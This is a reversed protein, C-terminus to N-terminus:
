DLIDNTIPHLERYYDHHVQRPIGVTMPGQEIHHHVLLDGKYPRHTRHFRLWTDDVRPARGARIRAANGPSFLQPFDALSARWFARSNRPFGAATFVKTVAAISDRTMDIMFDLRMFAIAKERRGMGLLGAGGYKAAAAAASRDTLREAILRETAPDGLNGLPRTLQMRRLQDPDSMLDLAADSLEVERLVGARAAAVGRAGGSGVGGSGTEVDGARAADREPTAGKKGRGGREGVVGRQGPGGRDAGRRAAGLGQETAEAAELAVVERPLARGAVGRGAAAEPVPLPAVAARAARGGRRTMTSVAGPLAAVAALAVVGQFAVGLYNGGTSLKTDDPTFASAYGAQDQEVERLFSVATGVANLVVELVAGALRGLPGALDLVCVADLAVELAKDVFSRGKLAAWALAFEVAGPHVALGLRAVGAAVAPPLRWIALPDTVIRERVEPIAELSQRLRALAYARGEDASRAYAKLIAVGSPHAMLRRLDPDGGVLVARTFRVREFRDIVGGGASRTSGSLAAAEDPHLVRGSASDIRQSTSYRVAARAARRLRESDSEVVQVLDKIHPTQRDLLETVYAVAAPRVANLFVATLTAYLRRAEDASVRIGTAEHHVAAVAQDRYPSVRDTDVWGQPPATRGSSGRLYVAGLFRAAVATSRGDAAGAVATGGKDAM